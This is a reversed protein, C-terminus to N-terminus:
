CNMKEKLCWHNLKIKLYKWKKRLKCYDFPILLLKWSLVSIVSKNNKKEKKKKEERVHVNSLLLFM